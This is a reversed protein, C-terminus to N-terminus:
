RIDMSSAKSWNTHLLSLSLFFCLLATFLSFLTSSSVTYIYMASISLSFSLGGVIWVRTKRMLIGSYSLELVSFDDLLKSLCGHTIIIILLFMKVDCHM